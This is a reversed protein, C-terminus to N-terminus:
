GEKKNAENKCGGNKECEQRNACEFCNSGDFYRIITRNRGIVHCYRELKEASQKKNDSM